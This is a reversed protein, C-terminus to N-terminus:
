PVSRDSDPRVELVRWGPQARTLVTIVHQVPGATHREVVHGAADVLVYPRLEETVSLEVQDRVPGARIGLLRHGLGRATVRRSQLDALAAQDARL